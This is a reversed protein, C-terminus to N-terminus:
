SSETRSKVKCNGRGPSQKATQEDIRQVLITNETLETLTTPVIESASEAHPQHQTEVEDESTETIPLNDIETADGVLKRKKSTSPLLVNKRIERRTVIDKTWPFISPLQNRAVREGGPFHKGCIRTSSSHKLNDNRILRAYEKRIGEESPLSHVKLNPSNRWNNTCLPVCCNWKLVM